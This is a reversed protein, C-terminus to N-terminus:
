KFGFTIIRKYLIRFYKFDNNMKNIGPNIFKKNIINM